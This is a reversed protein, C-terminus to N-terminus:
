TVAVHVPGQGNIQFSLEGKTMDLFMDLKNGVSYDGPFKQNILKTLEGNGRGLVLDRNKFGLSISGKATRSPKYHESIQPAIGIAIGNDGNINM